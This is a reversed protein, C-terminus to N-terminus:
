TTTEKPALANLTDNAFAKAKAYVAAGPTSRLARIRELGERMQRNERELRNLRDFADAIDHQGGDPATVYGLDYNYRWEDQEGTTM